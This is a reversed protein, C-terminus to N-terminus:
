MKRGTLEWGRDTKEARTTIGGLDSGFDPETFAITGIKEGRLAPGLLRTKHDETGFRYLFDTGMLSQMAVASALSLSGRALEEVMLCFTIFDAGMGGVSEPYRIAFYGNAACKAFLEHPFEGAEDLGGAVPTVEKDVFGRVSSRFREQEESLTFDM